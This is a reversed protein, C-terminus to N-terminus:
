PDRGEVLSALRELGDEFHRRMMDDFRMVRIFAREFFTREGTMVWSVRTGSEAPALRWEVKDERARPSLFEMHLRIVGAGDDGTLTMRGRGMRKGEWAYTAGVGSSPDSIEVTTTPDLALFPSWASFTELDRIQAFVDEVPADIRHDVRLEYSKPM